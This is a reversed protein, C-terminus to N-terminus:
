SVVSELVKPMLFSAEKVGMGHRRAMMMLVEPM